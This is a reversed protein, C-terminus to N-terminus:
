ATKTDHEFRPNEFAVPSLYGLSSHRRTRNYFTEIYDFSALEVDRHHPPISEEIGSETKFTSFFSEAAANDYCNGAGLLRIGLLLVRSEPADPRCSEEMIVYRVSRNAADAKLDADVAKGTPGISRM